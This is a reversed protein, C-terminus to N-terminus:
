LKGLVLAANQGGFGFSNSLARKLPAERPVNPVTDLGLEPDPDHQNITPPAIGSVLAQVSAVAEAAGSGAVMHGTMSKTSSVPLRDARGGFVSRIARAEAADGLPTSTAHANVYDIAEPDLGAEDLARRMALAAGRGSPDPQTVHHADASRGYGLVEAYINAGRARAHELTELVLAAAGEGLVFGDRERDFPRSAAEPDDNRQSLAGMGALAAVILPTIPAETGGALMGDAEGLRVARFAQGLADTGTACATSPSIMPGHLDFRMAVHASPTNGILKSLLFPDIRGLGRTATRELTQQLSEMGGLATAMAAGWRARDTREAALLDDLGADSAAMAAAALGLAAGRDLRKLAQGGVAAAPDADVEAAIRVSLESADFRSIARVGSAGELQARHFAEAGCGIPTIAALGTIVVRRPGEARGGATAPGQTPRTETVNPRGGEPAM